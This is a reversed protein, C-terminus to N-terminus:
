LPQRHRPFRSLQERIQNRAAGLRKAKLVYLALAACRRGAGGHRPDPVPTLVQHRGARYVCPIFGRHIGFMVAIPFLGALFLLASRTPTSTCLCGHCATRCAAPRRDAYDCYLDTRGYDAPHHRLDSHYGPEAPIFVGCRVNSGHVPSPPSRPIGIINGRPDIGHGFFTEMGPTFGKTAQPDYGLIFLAAIIRVMLASGGFAKQANYGILIGMFAFCGKGFVKM